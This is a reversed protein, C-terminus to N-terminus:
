RTLTSLWLMCSIFYQSEVFGINLLLKSDGIIITKSLVVHLGPLTDGVSFTLGLM